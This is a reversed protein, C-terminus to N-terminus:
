KVGQLQEDTKVLEEQLQQLTNEDMGMEEITKNDRIRFRCLLIFVNLIWFSM